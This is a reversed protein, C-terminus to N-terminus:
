SNFFDVIKPSVKDKSMAYAPQLQILTRFSDSAKEQLGINFYARGRYEYAQVLIERGRPPLSGQRRLAELKEIIQDFLAISRSQQPGDCEGPAKVLLDQVLAMERQAAESVPSPSPSPQQARASAAGAGCLALGLLVRGAATAPSHRIKVQVAVGERGQ